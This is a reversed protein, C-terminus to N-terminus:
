DPLEWEKVHWGACSNRHGCRACTAQPLDYYTGWDICGHRRCISENIRQQLTDGTLPNKAPVDFFWRCIREIM